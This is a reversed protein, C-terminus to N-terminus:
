VSKAERVSDVVKVAHFDALPVELLLGFGDAGFRDRIVRWHRRLFYAAGQTGRPGLGAAIFIWGREDFPNQIKILLGYDMVGAKASWTDSTGVREITSYNTETFRYFTGCTEMLQRTKLNSRPGGICFLNGLSSSLGEDDRLVRTERRRGAMACLSVVYGLAQVDGEAVVWPTGLTPQVKLTALSPEQGPQLKVFEQGSPFMAAIFVTVDEHDSAFPGVVARLPRGTRWEERIARGYAPLLWGALAGLLVGLGLEVAKDTQLTVRGLIMQLAWWCPIGLVLGALLSLLNLRLVFDWLSVLEQRIAEISGSM